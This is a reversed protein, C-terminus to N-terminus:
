LIWLEIYNCIIYNLIFFYKFFQSIKKYINNLLIFNKIKKKKRKKILIMLKIKVKM